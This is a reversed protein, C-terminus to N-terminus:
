KSLIRILDDISSNDLTETVHVNRETLYKTTSEGWSYVTDNKPINNVALFGEVNSPSTFVYTECYELPKSVIKTKYVTVIEKQSDAFLSSVTQLSRDSTPFLVSKNGCWSKFSNATETINGSKDGLFAVEYGLETLLEATKNGPCAIQVNKPIEFLLKYFLVSRPSSFFIVNFPKNVTFPIPEFHIFSQAILNVGKNNLFNALKGVESFDKSIFFHKNM